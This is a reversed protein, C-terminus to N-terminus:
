NRMILMIRNIYLRIHTVAYQFETANLVATTSAEARRNQNALMNVHQREIKDLIVKTTDM